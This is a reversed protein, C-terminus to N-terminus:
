ARGARAELHHDARASKSRERVAPKGADIEAVVQNMFSVTRDVVVQRQRDITIIHYSDDLVVLEVRGGLHRQLYESNNIDAHDDERPHLVLSPQTVKAAERMFAKVMWRHELVAGGPTYPIGSVSNDASKLANAILDRVRPDKIGHPDADEFRLKNAFWKHHVLNFFRAYWPMVWGNLWFIPAYSVTGQVLKPNRAALLLALVAGVSLGGVFVVDCDQRMRQLAAEASTYWDQWTTNAVDDVSGGHGALLPCHVTYGARAVGYAVYRLEMPTGGLGHFLLLGVRNGPIILSLDKNTM